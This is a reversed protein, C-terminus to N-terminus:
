TLMPKRLGERARLTDKLTHGTTVYALFPGLLALMVGELGQSSPKSFESDKLGKRWEGSNM